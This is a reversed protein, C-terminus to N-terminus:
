MKLLYPTKMINEAIATETKFNRDATKSVSARVSSMIFDSIALGILFNILDPPVQSSVSKLQPYQKETQTANPTTKRSPNAYLKVPQYQTSRVM